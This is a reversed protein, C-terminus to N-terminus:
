YQEAFRDGQGAGPGFQCAAMALEGEVFHEQAERPLLGGSSWRCLAMAANDGPSVSWALCSPCGHLSSLWAPVVTPIRALLKSAGSLMTQVSAVTAAM